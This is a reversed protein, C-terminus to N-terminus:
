VSVVSVAHRPTGRNAHPGRGAGAADEGRGLGLQDAAVAEFAYRQGPDGALESDAVARQAVPPFSGLFGDGLRDAVALQAIYRRALQGHNCRSHVRCAASRIRTHALTAEVLVPRAQPARGPPSLSSPANLPVTRPHPKTVTDGHLLGDLSKFPSDGIGLLRRGVVRRARLDLPLRVQVPDARRLLM